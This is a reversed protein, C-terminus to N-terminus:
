NESAEKTFSPYCPVFSNLLDHGRLHALLIGLLLDQFSGPSLLSDKPRAM